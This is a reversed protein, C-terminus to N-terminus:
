RADNAYHTPRLDSRMPREILIGHHDISEIEM